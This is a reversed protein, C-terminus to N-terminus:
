ATTFVAFDIPPSGGFVGLKSECSLICIDWPKYREVVFDFHDGCSVPVWNKEIVWTIQICNSMIFISCTTISSKFIKCLKGFADKTLFNGLNSGPIANWQHNCVFTFKKWAPMSLSMTMFWSVMNGFRCLKFKVRFYDFNCSSECMAQSDIFFTFGVWPSLAVAELKSVAFFVIFLLWLKDFSKLVDVYNINWTRPALFIGVAHSDVLVSDHVCPSSSVFAFKAMIILPVMRIRCVLWQWFLYIESVFHDFTARTSNVWHKDIFIFLCHRKSTSTVTSDAMLFWFIMSIKVPLAFWPFNLGKIMVIHFSELTTVIM